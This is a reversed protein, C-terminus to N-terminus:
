DGRGLVVSVRGVWSSDGDNLYPDGVVLDGLGDGDLDGGAVSRGPSASGPSAALFLTRAPQGDFPERQGYIVRAGTSTYDSMPIGLIVDALGDGDVDGAAAASGLYEWYELGGLEDYATTGAGPQFQGFLVAGQETGVLTEVVGDGDVDGVSAVLPGSGYGVSATSWADDATLLGTGIPGAFVDVLASFGSYGSYPGPGGVVLDPVGDGTVDGGCAPNLGGGIEIIAGAGDLASTPEEAGGSLVYLRAPPAASDYTYGPAAIWADDYGDGDLDGLPGVAAGFNSLSPGGLRASYNLAGQALWDGGFVLAEGSDDWGGSDTYNAPQGALVEDLGDGDLDGVRALANAGIDRTSATYVGEAALSGSMPMAYAFVRGDPSDDPAGVILVGPEGPGASWVAVSSGFLEDEEGGTITLAADSLGVVGTLACSPTAGACDEDVGNGCVEDTCDRASDEPAGTTDVDSGVPTATCCGGAWIGVYVALWRPVRM